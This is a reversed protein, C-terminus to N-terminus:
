VPQPAHGRRIGKHSMKPRSRKEKSGVSRSYVQTFEAGFFLIQAVFYVWLLIIALSGAAGFTSAVASQGLYLGIVLKGIEFLIATLLAGPIVDRWPIKLDPLIRFIMAFLATSFGLSVVLQGIQWLADLGPFANGMFKTLGAIITSVALSVMLLFGVGLIMTFSLFRTKIIGKIGGSPKPPVDWIQNLSDQLEGFVGTAGITLTVFGIITALVGGGQRAGNQIATQIAEAGQKGVLGSIQVVLQGRAAEEGLVLSAIGILIILLPAISFVTYYALAAALKPAKDESWESFTEKGLQKITAMKM